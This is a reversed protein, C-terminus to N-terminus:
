WPWCDEYRCSVGGRIPAPGDMFLYNILHIIDGADIVNDNNCDAAECVCPETGELYLYNILFVVDGIDVLSDGNADGPESWWVFLEGMHYYWSILYGLTDSLFSAGPALFFFAERLTDADPICCIDMRIKFLCSYHPSPPIFEGPNGMGFINVISGNGECVCSMTDSLASASCGATDIFCYGASDCSFKAAHSSSLQFRLQYATVPVPNQMLITVWTETGPYAIMYEIAIDVTDDEVKGALDPPQSNASGNLGFLLLLGTVCLLVIKSRM